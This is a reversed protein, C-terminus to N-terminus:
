SGHRAYRVLGRLPSSTAATDADTHQEIQLLAEELCTVREQLVQALVTHM